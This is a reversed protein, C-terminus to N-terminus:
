GRTRCPEGRPGLRRRGRRARACPGDRHHRPDAIGRGPQRGRRVPNRLPLTPPEAAVAVDIFPERVIDVPLAVEGALVMEHFAGEDFNQAFWSARVITWELGSEQVIRECRQAEEESGERLASQFLDYYASVLMPNEEIARLMDTLNDGKRVTVYNSIPIMIEKVLIDKM